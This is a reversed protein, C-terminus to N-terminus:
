RVDTNLGTHIPHGDIDTGDIEILWYGRVLTISGTYHGKGTAGLQVVAEVVPVANAQILRGRVDLTKIGVLQGASDTLYLHMPNRGAHVSEIDVVVVRGDDLTIRSSVTPYSAPLLSRGFAVAFLLVFPAVWALGVSVTRRLTPATSGRGGREFRSLRLSNTVVCVSSLGMSLGAVAPSLRGIAALPIAALNYGFAWGLNQLITTYTARALRLARPVGDLHSSLLV